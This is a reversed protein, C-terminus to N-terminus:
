IAPSHKRRRLHFFGIRPLGTERRVRSFQKRFGVVVFGINAVKGHNDWAEIFCFPQKLKMAAEGCAALFDAIVFDDEDIVTRVIASPWQHALKRIRVRVEDDDVQRPIMPMLEGQGGPKIKGTTLANEDDIGVQLVRGLKQLLHRAQHVLTRVDDVTLTPV